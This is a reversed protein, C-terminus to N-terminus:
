SNGKLITIHTIAVLKQSYSITYGTNLYMKENSLTRKLGSNSM